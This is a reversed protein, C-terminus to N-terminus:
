VDAAVLRRHLSVTAWSSERRRHPRSSAPRVRPRSLEHQAPSLGFLVWHVFTGRPAGPDEVVLAVSATGTPLGTWTLPPWEGSGRCTFEEPIAAGDAFAPSTVAITVPASSPAPAPADSQEARGRLSGARRGAATGAPQARLSPLGAVAHHGHEPTGWSWTRQPRPRPEAASVGSGASSSRTMSRRASASVPGVTPAM